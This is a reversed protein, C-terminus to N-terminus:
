TIGIMVRILEEMVVVPVVVWAVAISFLFLAYLLFMVSRAFLVALRMFFSIIKGAIDYQGYMPKGLNKIWLRLGLSREFGSLHNRLSKLVRLLGRSYWWVPTTVVDLITEKILITGYSLSIM